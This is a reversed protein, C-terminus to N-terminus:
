PVEDDTLVRGFAGVLVLGIVLWILFIFIFILLSNNTWQLIGYIMFALIITGGGGLLVPINTRIQRGCSSCPGDAFVFRFKSNRYKCNPCAIKWSNQMTSDTNRM